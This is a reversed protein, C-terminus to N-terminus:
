NREANQYWFVGLDEGEMKEMEKHQLNRAKEWIEPDSTVESKRSRKSTRTSRSGDTGTSFYDVDPDSDVVISRGKGRPRSFEEEEESSLTLSAVPKKRKQLIRKNKGKVDAPTTWQVEMAENGENVGINALPDINPALVPTRNEGGAASYELVSEATDIFEVSEAPGECSTSPASDPVM